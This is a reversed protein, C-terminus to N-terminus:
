FALNDFIKQSTEKVFADNTAGFNRVEYVYKPTVFMTYSVDNTDETVVLDLVKQGWRTAPTSSKIKYTQAQMGKEDTSQNYKEMEGKLTSLMDENDVIKLQDNKICSVSVARSIFGSAEGESAYMTIAQQPDLDIKTTYLKSLINPYSGGRPFDWFRGSGLDETVSPPRNPDYPKYYPDAKPPIAFQVGCQNNSKYKWGKPLKSTDQATPNTTIATAEPTPVPSTTSQATDTNQKPVTSLQKGLYFGGFGFVILCALVVLGIMTFNTKPKEPILVPQIPPNKPLPQTTQIPQTSLNEM